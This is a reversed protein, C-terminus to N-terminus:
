LWCDHCASMVGLHQMGLMYSPKLQVHMGRTLQLGQRNRNPVARTSTCAQSCHLLTHLEVAVGRGSRPHGRESQARVATGAAVDIDDVENQVEAEPAIEVVKNKKKPKSAGGEAAKPAPAAPQQTRPKEAAEPTSSDEASDASKSGKAFPAETAEEDTGASSKRSEQQLTPVALSLLLAAILLVLLHRSSVQMACYQIGFFERLM